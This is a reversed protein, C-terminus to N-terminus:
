PDPDPKHEDGIAGAHHSHWGEALVARMAAADTSGAKGVAHDIAMM